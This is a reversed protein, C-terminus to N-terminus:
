ASEWPPLPGCQPAAASPVFILAGSGPARSQLHVWPDTGTSGHTWRPDEMWLGHRRLLSQNALCWRALPRTAFDQLDIGEGTLHTSRAAANATRSNVGSPRWGSAVATRSQGDIGPVVGAAAAYGLLENVRSLLIKANREIELTLERGHSRDRGMWYQALTIGPAASRTPSTEASGSSTM